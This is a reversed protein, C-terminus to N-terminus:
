KTFISGCARTTQCTRTQKASRRRLSDLDPPLACRSGDSQDKRSSSANVRFTDQDPPVPHRSRRRGDRARRSINRLEFGCPGAFGRPIRLGIATAQRAESTNDQGYMAGLEPVLACGSQLEHAIMLMLIPWVAEGHQNTAPPYADRLSSTPSLTMTTGDIIFARQGAFWPPSREILSDSVREAFARVTEIPLRKRAVSYTGSRKQFRAKASGSTIRCSIEIIPWFRRSLLPWRSAAVSGSSPSCGSPSSRQISQRRRSMSHAPPSITRRFSEISCNLPRLSNRM